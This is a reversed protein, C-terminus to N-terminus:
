LLTAALAAIGASAVLLDARSGEAWHRCGCIRGGHGRLMMAAHLRQSREFGYLALTGLGEGAVTLRRRAPGASGGRLRLARMLRELRAVLEFLARYTLFLGDAAGRPLVRSIPAFLDPYPTTGVLWVVTLSATLPRLVLLLVTAPTGDWRAAVLLVLFLLPYAAAALAVRKPLGSTLVLLWAIGHLVGLLMLSPSFIGLGVLGLAVILKGLASARHWPTAGTSAGHDLQALLGIVGCGGGRLKSGQPRAAAARSAREHSLARHRLGGGIRGAHRRDLARPGIRHLARRAPRSPRRRGAAPRRAADRVRHGGVACGGRAARRRERAGDGVRSATTRARSVGRKGDGGRGGARFHQSRDRHARRPGSVGPDRQGRVGGALSRRRRAPDRGAGGAHSSVRAPRAAGGDRGADARRASRSIGRAAAARLPQFARPSRARHALRAGVALAPGRRGSSPPAVRRGLRGLRARRWHRARRLRAARGSLRRPHQRHHARRGRGSDGSRALRRPLRRRVRGRSQAAPRSRDARVPADHRAGPAASRAPAAIGSSARSRRGAARGPQLGARASAGSPAARGAGSRSPLPDASIAGARRRARRGARPPRRVQAGPGGAGHARRLALRLAGPFRPADCLELSRARAPPLARLAAPRLASDAGLVGRLATTGGRAGSRLWPLARPARLGRRRGVLARAAEDDRGAWRARWRSWRSRGRSGSCWRAAHRFSSSGSDTTRRADM